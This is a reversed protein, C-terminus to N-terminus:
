FINFKFVPPFPIVRSPISSDTAQFLGMEKRRGEMKKEVLIEGEKM